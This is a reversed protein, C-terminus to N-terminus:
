GDTEELEKLRQLLEAKLQEPANDHRLRSMLRATLHIQDFYERCPSCIIKHLWVQLKDGVPLEGELHETIINAFEQCTLM